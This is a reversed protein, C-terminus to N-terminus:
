TLYRQSLLIFVNDITSWVGVTRLVASLIQYAPYLLAFSRRGSIAVALKADKSYQYLPLLFLLFIGGLLSPIFTSAVALILLFTWFIPGRLEWINYTEPVEIYQNIHTRGSDFKRRLVPRLEVPFNSKVGHEDLRAINWNHLSARQKLEQVEAGIMTKKFGGTDIFKKRDVGICAGGYWTGRGRRKSIAAATPHLHTTNKVEVRGFVLDTGSNFNNYMGRITGSLLVSDADIRLLFEGSAAETLRNVTDIIGRNKSNQLVRLKERDTELSELIEYTKDSSSDDCAIVEFVKDFKQNLVSAVCDYIYEEENYAPIIVSVVIDRADRDTTGM